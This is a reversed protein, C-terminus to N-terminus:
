HCVAVGHKVWVWGDGVETVCGCRAEGLGLWGRSQGIEVERSTPWPNSKPLSYSVRM